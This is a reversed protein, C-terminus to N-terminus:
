ASAKEGDMENDLGISTSAMMPRVPKHIYKGYYSIIATRVTTSTAKDRLVPFFTETYRNSFRTIYQIVSVTINDDWNRSAHWLQTGLAEKDGKFNSLVNTLLRNHMFLSKDNIVQLANVVGEVSGMSCLASLVNTRCHISFDDIYAILTSAVSGYRRGAGQPFSGIFNAYCTREIVSKRSYTHALKHFTDYRGYIYDSYAAPFESKLYQLAQAYVVLNETNKLKRLLFRNHRLAGPRRGSRRGLRRGSAPTIQKYLIDKWKEVKKNTTLTGRGQSLYIITVNFIILAMCIVMFIGIVIYIRFDSIM